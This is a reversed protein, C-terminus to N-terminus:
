KRSNSIWFSRTRLTKSIDYKEIIQIVNWLLVNVKRWTFWKWAWMKCGNLMLKDLTVLFLSATVCRLSITIHWTPQIIIVAKKQQYLRGSGTIVVPLFEFMTYAPTITKVVIVGVTGNWGALLPFIVVIVASLPLFASTGLSLYLQLLDCKLLGLGILCPYVIAMRCLWFLSKPQRFYSKSFYIKLHCDAKSYIIYTYQLFGQQLTLPVSHCLLSVEGWHPFQPFYGGSVPVQGQVLFLRLVGSSYRDVEQRLGM